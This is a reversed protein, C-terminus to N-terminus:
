CVLVKVQCQSISTGQSSYKCFPISPRIISSRSATKRLAFITLAITFTSAATKLALGCPQNIARARRPIRTRIGMTHPRLVPFGNGWLEEVPYRDRDISPGYFGGPEGSSRQGFSVGVSAIETTTRGARSCSGGATKVGEAEFKGYWYITPATRVDPSRAWRTPVPTASTRTAM